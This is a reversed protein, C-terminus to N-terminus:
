LHVFLILLGSSNVSHGDFLMTFLVKIILSSIKRSSPLNKEPRYVSTICACNHLVYVSTHIYMHIGALCIDTNSTTCVQKFDEEYKRLLLCQHLRVEHDIWIKDFNSRTEELQSLLRSFFFGLMTTCTSLQM